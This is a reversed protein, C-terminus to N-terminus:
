QVGFASANLGTNLAVTQTQFDLLLTNNLYKQIHFPVQTGNVVRYDSYRIESPIDLGADNDPHVNFTLSVPLLTTSDLYFDAQSLHLFLAATNRSSAIPQSLSVHEVAVSNRSEHGVYTAIYGSASLRRAIAFAPFFWAPESLLNHFAIAHSVGDPGSWTGTPAAASLDSVESRQGSSLSLDMRGAGSALAKFVATGTDDDSGAIRHATGSLTVDTLAARGTLAALAQALLTTAQASSSAVPANVQQATALNPFSFLLASFAALLKM